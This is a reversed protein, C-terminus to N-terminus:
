TPGVTSNYVNWEHFAHPLCLLIYVKEEVSALLHLGTPTSKAVCMKKKAGLWEEESEFYFDTLESIM